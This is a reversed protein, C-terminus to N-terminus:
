FCSCAFECCGDITARKVIHRGFDRLEESKKVLGKQVNQVETRLEHVEKKMEGFEKKM